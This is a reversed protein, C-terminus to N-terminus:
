VRAHFVHRRGECLVNHVRGLICSASHGLLLLLITVPMRCRQGEGYQGRATKHLADEPSFPQIAALIKAQEDRVADAEFSVPPEMATMDKTLVGAAM